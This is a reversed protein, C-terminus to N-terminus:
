QEEGALQALSPAGGEAEQKQEEGVNNRRGRRGKNQENPDPMRFEEKAENATNVNAQEEENLKDTEFEQGITLVKDAALAKVAPWEKIDAPYNHAGERILVTHKPWTPAVKLRDPVHADPNTVDQHQLGATVRITVSSQIQVMKAM